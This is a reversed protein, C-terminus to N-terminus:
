QRDKKTKRRDKIEERKSIKRRTDELTNGTGNRVNRKRKCSGIISGNM